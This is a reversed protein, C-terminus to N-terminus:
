ERGGAARATLAEVEPRHHPQRIKYLGSGLPDRRIDEGGHCVKSMSCTTPYECARLTRRFRRNLLSRREGEDTAAEILAVSEAVEVEQAEIEEILDRLSDDQRYVIVPPVFVADLPHQATYGLAQGASKWGLARPELGVTSDEASMAEESQDLLDIWAKVYSNAAAGVTVGNPSMASGQPSHSVWGKQGSASSQSKECRTSESKELQRPKQGASTCFSTDDFVPESKWHGYYLNTAAGDEKIYDYSWCQDGLSFAAGKAPTSRAVYRRVLHSKQSRCDFGFRATLDKDRWREGKLLYEYRIGLIRPPAPISRLFEWMAKKIKIEGGADQVYYYADRLGQNDPGLDGAHALHWWEGLRREVEVGESLGQMDHQADLEKRRDWSAATKFSMLYLSNDARSRLLADPRSMFRLSVHETEFVKAEDLTGANVIEGTEVYRPGYWSSLEWEGEREVELVEHSELLPRLKRRAYARVLAEVLGSQEKWLYEDFEKAGSAHHDYLAALTPDDLPVGLQDATAAMQRALDSPSAMAAAEGPDLALQGRYQSLDAIASAVARDEIERWVALPVAEVSGHRDVAKQGEALELALGVHVAGGVALPLPKSKPELGQGAEHYRLFRERACHQYCETRSRDTFIVKPM